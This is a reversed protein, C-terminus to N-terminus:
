YFELRFQSRMPTAVKPMDYKLCQWVHWGYTRKRNNYHYPSDPGVMHKYHDDNFADCTHWRIWGNFCVVGIIERKETQVDLWKGWFRSPLSIHATEIKKRGVVILDAWPQRIFVRGETKM